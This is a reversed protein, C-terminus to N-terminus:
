GSTRHKLVGLPAKTREQKKVRGGNSRNLAQDSGWVRRWTGDSMEFAM